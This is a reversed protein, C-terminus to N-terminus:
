QLSVCIEHVTSLPLGRIRKVLPDNENLFEYEVPEDVGSLQSCMHNQFERLRPFERNCKQCTLNLPQQHSSETHARWASLRKTDTIIWLGGDGGNCKKCYGHM